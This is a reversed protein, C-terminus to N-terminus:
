LRGRGKLGDLFNGKMAAPDGRFAKRAENDVIIIVITIQRFVVIYHCAGGPCEGSLNTQLVSM